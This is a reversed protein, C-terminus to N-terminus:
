PAPTPFVIRDSRTLTIRQRTGPGTRLLEVAAQEIYLDAASLCDVPLIVGMGRFGAATATHLVAGHAATGTVIVNQVGRDALTAELNTKWFKNVSSAVIPEGEAPTVPELITEPTGKSTLSYIVPMGAARAKHVLGAIRPVTTLCRPRREMNCTREEIDLVLLATTAPNTNVTALEPVPPPTVTNWLEDISDTPAGGSQAFAAPSVALMALGLVASLIFQHFIDRKMIM